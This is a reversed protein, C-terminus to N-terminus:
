AEVGGTGKGSGALGAKWVGKTWGPCSCWAADELTGKGPVIAGKEIGRLLKRLGREIECGGAGFKRPAGRGPGAVGEGAPRGAYAWPVMEAM